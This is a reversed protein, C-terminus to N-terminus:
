KTGNAQLTRDNGWCHVSKNIHYTMFIPFFRSGTPLECDIEDKNICNQDDIEEIESQLASAEVPCCWGFDGQFKRPKCLYYGRRPECEKIGLAIRSHKANLMILFLLLLVKM